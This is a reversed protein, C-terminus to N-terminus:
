TPLSLYHVSIWLDFRAAQFLFNQLGNMSKSARLLGGCRGSACEIYAGVIYLPLWHRSACLVTLSSGLRLSCEKRRLMM